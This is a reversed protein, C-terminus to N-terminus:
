FCVNRVFFAQFYVSSMPVNSILRKEDLDKHQVVM